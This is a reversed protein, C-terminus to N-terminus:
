TLLKTLNADKGMATLASQMTTLDTRYSGDANTNNAAEM